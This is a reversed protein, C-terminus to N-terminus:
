FAGYGEPIYHSPNTLACDKKRYVLVNSYPMSYVFINTKPPRQPEQGELLQLTVLCVRLCLSHSSGAPVCACVKHRRSVESVGTLCYKGNQFVKNSWPKIQLPLETKDGRLTLREYM